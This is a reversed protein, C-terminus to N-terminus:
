GVQLRAIDEEAGFLLKLIQKNLFVQALTRLASPSAGMLDIVFCHVDLATTGMEDEEDQQIHTPCHEGCVALQVVAAASRSGRHTVQLGGCLSVDRLQAGSGVQLLEDPRWEVDVAVLSINKALVQTLIAEGEKGLAEFRSSEIRKSDEGAVLVANALVFSAPLSDLSLTRRGM